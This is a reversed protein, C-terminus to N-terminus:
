KRVAREATVTSSQGSPRASVYHEVLVALLDRNVPKMLYNSAGLEVGMPINDVITVMIVPIEALGPDAKIEKLVRWGDMHPMMVDLTILFPQVEKALRLGEAGGEATVVHFGM